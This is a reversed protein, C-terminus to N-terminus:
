ALRKPLGTLGPTLLLAKRRLAHEREGARIHKMKATFQNPPPKGAAKQAPSLLKRLKGFVMKWGQKISKGISEDLSADMLVVAEDLLESIEPTM